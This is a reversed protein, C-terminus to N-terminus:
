YNQLSSVGEQDREFWTKVLEPLNQQIQSLMWTDLNQPYFDELILFTKNQFVLVGYREVWGDTYEKKYFHLDYQSGLQTKLNQFSNDEPMSMISNFAILAYDNYPHWSLFPVFQRQLINYGIVKDESNRFIYNASAWLMDQLNSGSKHILNSFITLENTKINKEVLFQGGENIVNSKIIKKLEQKSYELNRSFLCYNKNMFLDITASSPYLESDFSQGPHFQIPSSASSPLGYIFGALVFGVKLLFKNSTTFM